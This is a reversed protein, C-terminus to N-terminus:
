KIIPIAVANLINTILHFSSFPLIASPIKSAHQKISSAPTIPLLKPPSIIPVGLSSGMVGALLILCCADFIGDAIRGKELKWKIVLINFATAIGIILYALGSEM